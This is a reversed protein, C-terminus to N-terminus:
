NGSYRYEYGGIPDRTYAANMGDYYIPILKVHGDVFAVVNEANNYFPTNQKRTLSHHWSLPAHATWEMVMLTRAPEKVAAVQWGAVNPIGPLNVGNFVYSTYDHKNSLRFPTARDTGEGYGRDSPCAFVKDAPSSAASLGAYSKVQEKYYWWGGPAPSNDLQPLTAKHEEAYMLVAKGVQGLNATCQALSAQSKSRAIMPVAVAVLVSVVALVALLDAV